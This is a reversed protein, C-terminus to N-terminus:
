QVLGAARAVIEVPHHARRGTGDRIQHRCSTGSAALVIDPSAARVAPLLRRDAMELSIDFHEREYGFSGAMGCCGSDVTGVPSGTKELFRLVPDIGVLAKQHCHGHVLIERPPSPFHIELDELFEEILFSRKAVAEAQPGPVLEPYEDRLSLLCSPECGVVACGEEVYPYLVEVNAQALSRAEELLGKSMAPRGCCRKAALLVEFGSAELLSTAAMGIEPEYYNMFTDHFLIVRGREGSTPKRNRFWNEFSERAFAPLSRRRDIGVWRELVWRFSARRSIWNSLPATAVGLRGAAEVRSVLRDRLSHPRRTHYLALFDSKLRAMDVNSPCEAKCGKCSICLDMVQYLRENTLEAADLRGDLLARLANARGRTSHEEELTVMYSPCMTGELKKRCVGSGNCLEVARAFGGEREYRFYTPLTETQYSSGYRLNETMPPADVVKGPNMIGQPDFARKLKQFAQYLKLGFMEQNFQSRALGDGHEGSMAGGFELVLHCVDDALRRMKVVEAGDKLNILPRIHLCGAGAHAYFAGVTESAALLQNFRRIYEALREPAV